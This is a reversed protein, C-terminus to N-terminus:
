DDHTVALLMSLICFAENIVKRKPLWVFRQFTWWFTYKRGSMVFLSLQMLTINLLLAMAGVPFALPDLYRDKMPINESDMMAMIQKKKGAKKRM